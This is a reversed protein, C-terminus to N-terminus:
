SISLFGDTFKLRLPVFSRVFRVEISSREFIRENYDDTAGSADPIDAGLSAHLAQQMKKEEKSLSPPDNRESDATATSEKAKPKRTAPM